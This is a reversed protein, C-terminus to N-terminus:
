KEKKNFITILPIDFLVSFNLRSVDRGESITATAGEQYKIDKLNNIYNWNLGITVPAGNFNYYLGAGPALFHEFKLESYTTNDNKFRANVLSGLDLVSFFLTMSGKHFPKFSLSLGIPATIGYYSSDQNDSGSRVWEYGATPGVYSNLTLSFPSSRKVSASGIPASYANLLAEMDAQDNIAALQSVFVLMRNYKTEKSGMYEGLQITLQTVGGLYDEKIFLEAIGVYKGTIELMKDNIHLAANIQQINSIKKVFVVLSENLSKIYQIKEQPTSLKFDKSKLYEYTTNLDNVFLLMSQIRKATEVADNNEIYARFAPLEYLQNYMLLYFNKVVTDTLVDEPKLSVLPNVWETGAGQINILGNSIIAAAATFQQVPNSYSNKAIRNIIEDIPLNEGSSKIIEGAITIMDQIESYDKLKPFIKQPNKLISAPLNKVDNQAVQKLFVLDASYYAANGSNYLLKMQETTQPFFACVIESQDMEDKNPAVIRKFVQNLGTHLLEEKFRGAMFTALGNIVSAEWSISTAAQKKAEDDNALDLIGVTDRTTSFPNRNFNPTIIQTYIAFFGYLSENEYADVAKAYTHVVPSPLVAAETPVAVPVFGKINIAFERMVAIQDWTFFNRCDGGYGMFNTSMIRGQCNVRDECGFYKKQPPTDALGDGDRCLWKSGFIHRLGLWHGAEHILTKNGPKALTYDLVIGHYRSETPTYAGTNTNCVYVNLYSDPSYIPSEEFAKRKNYKFVRTNTPVNKVPSSGDPLTGALIFRIGTDGGIAGAFEAPVNSIDMKGSFGENLEDLLAQIQSDPIQQDVTNYLVHFIVPITVRENSDNSSFSRNMVFQPEDARCKDQSFVIGAWLLSIILFCRLM